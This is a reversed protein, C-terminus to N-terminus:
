RLTLRVATCRIKQGATFPLPLREAKRAVRAVEVANVNKEDWGKRIKVTVPIDTAKVVAEVIHGLLVPDKM